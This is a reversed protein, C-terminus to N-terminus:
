MCCLSYICFLQLLIYALFMTQKLYIITFVICLITIIIIVIIIIAAIEPVQGTIPVLDMWMVM